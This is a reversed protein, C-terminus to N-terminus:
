LKRAVEDALERYHAAGRSNSAFEFIPEGALQAKKLQTNIGIKTELLIDGWGQEIENLVDRNIAGTRKDVRTLLVGLIETENELRRNVTMVTGMLEDAGQVALPSLVTPILVYDSALLANLTLNGNNPPSDIVIVDYHTRTYELADDLLKEKGIKQSILGETESLNSDSPTLDIGSLRSSVVADLMDTEEDNLLVDSVSSEPELDPVFSSLSSACHGQADLDILLVDKDAFQALGAALNVSTTTKGVGGKVTAVSIIDANKDGIPYSPSSSVLKRISNTLLNGM